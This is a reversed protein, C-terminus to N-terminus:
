RPEERVPQTPRTSARREARERRDSRLWGIVMALLLLLALAAVGLRPYMWEEVQVTFGSRAAVPAAAAVESPVRVGRVLLRHTNVSYPTCTVLTVYDKGDVQKLRDLEAPLVVSVDDVRYTLVRGYVEIVFQDGAKVDVLRDFLTADTLGTHATLAAHTGEGGVPLTTGFLHGVGRNLTEDSTGHLVPLDVGISPVRLRAMAQTDALQALYADYATTRAPDEDTWPDTLMSSPLAANYAEAKALVEALRPSPIASIEGAYDQAFQAQRYNNYVTAGVPYLVVVAGLLLLVTPILRHARAHRRAPAPTPKAPRERTLTTM